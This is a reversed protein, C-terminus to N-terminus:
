RRTMRCKDHRSEIQTIWGEFDVPKGFHDVLYEASAVHLRNNSQLMSDLLAEGMGFALPYGAHHSAGAGFVYVTSM